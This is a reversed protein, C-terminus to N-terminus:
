VCRSTYLLCTHGLDIPAGEIRNNRSPFFLHRYCQQIALAVEQESRRYWEQVKDQQHQALEALRQPSRLAELALRRLVKAKMEDRLGDDAVLFVLNNRDRICM